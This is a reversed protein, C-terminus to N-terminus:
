IESAFRMQEEQLVNISVENKTTLSEPLNETNLFIRNGIALLVNGSILLVISSILLSGAENVLESGAVAQYVKFTDPTKTTNANATSIFLTYLILLGGIVMLGIGGEIMSLAAKTGSPIKRSVSENQLEANKRKKAKFAYLGIALFTISVITVVLMVVMAKMMLPVDIIKQASLFLKCPHYNIISKIKLYTM